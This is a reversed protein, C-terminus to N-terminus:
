YSPQPSSESNIISGQGTEKGKVKYDGKNHRSHSTDMDKEQM